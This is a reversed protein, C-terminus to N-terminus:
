VGFTSIIIYIKTNQTVKIQTQTVWNKLLNGMQEEFNKYSDLMQNAGTCLHATSRDEIGITIGDAAQHTHSTEM